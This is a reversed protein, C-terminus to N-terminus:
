GMGGTILPEDLVVVTKYLQAIEICPMGAAEPRTGTWLAIDLADATRSVEVRALGYCTDVGSWFYVTLTRGDPAVVVREWSSPLQDVLTPDPEILTAGDGEYPVSTSDSTVLADPAALGPSPDQAFAVDGAALLLVGCLMLADLWRSAAPRRHDHPRSTM